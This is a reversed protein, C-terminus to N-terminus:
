SYLALVKGVFVMQSSGTELSQAHVEKPKSTFGVYVLVSVSHSDMNGQQQKSELELEPSAKLFEKDRGIEEEYEVIDYM